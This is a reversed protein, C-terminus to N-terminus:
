IKSTKDTREELLQTFDDLLSKNITYNEEEKHCQLHELLWLSRLPIKTLNWFQCTDLLLGTRWVHVWEFWIWKQPCSLITLPTLMTLLTTLLTLLQEYIVDDNEALIRPKWKLGGMYQSYVIYEWYMPSRFHFGSFISIDNRPVAGLCHPLKHPSAVKM